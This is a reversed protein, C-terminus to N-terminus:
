VRGSPNALMKPGRSEDPDPSMLGERGRSLINQTQPRGITDYLFPSSKAGQVLPKRDERFRM